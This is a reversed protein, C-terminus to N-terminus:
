FGIGYGVTPSLTFASNPFFSQVKLEVLVGM